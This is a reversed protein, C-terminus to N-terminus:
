NKREKAYEDRHREEGKGHEVTQQEEISASQM